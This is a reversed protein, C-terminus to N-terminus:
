SNRIEELRNKVIIENLRNTIIQQLHQKKELSM